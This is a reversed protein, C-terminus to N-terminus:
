RLLTTNAIFGSPPAATPDHGVIAGGALIFDGWQSTDLKEQPLSGIAGLTPALVQAPATPGTLAAAPAAALAAGAMPLHEVGLSAPSPGGISRGVDAMVKENTVWSGATIQVRDGSTDRERSASARHNPIASRIFTPPNKQIQMGQE